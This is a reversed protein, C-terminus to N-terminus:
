NVVKNINGLFVRNEGRLRISIASMYEPQSYLSQCSFSLRLTAVLTLVRESMELEWFSSTRAVRIACSIMRWSRNPLIASVQNLKSCKAGLSLDVASVLHLCESQPLVPFVHFVLVWRLWRVFSLDAFTVNTDLSQQGNM